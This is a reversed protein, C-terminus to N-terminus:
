SKHYPNQAPQQTYPPPPGPNAPSHSPPYGGGQAASPPYQQPPYQQPPYQQPPYQQPPYQAPPYQAPPYQAPPYQAPPYQGQPPYQQPPYPVGTQSPQQSPVYTTQVVGTPQNYTVPQSNIVRGQNGRNRFCGKGLCYCCSCCIVIIAVVVAAVIIAITKIVDLGAEIIADDIETCSAQGTYWDNSCYYNSLSCDVYGDTSAYGQFRCTTSGWFDKDCVSNKQDCSIYSGSSTKCKTHYCREYCGVSILMVISIILKIMQAM